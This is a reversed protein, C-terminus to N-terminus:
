VKKGFLTIEKLPQENNYYYVFLDLIKMDFIKQFWPEKILADLNKKNTDENYQKYKKSIKVEELLDKISSNKIKNMQEKSVKLKEARDLKLFTYKRNKYLALVCDNLFSIMFNLFYTQVKVIINDINSSTHVAKKSEKNRKKGRKQKLMETKFYPRDKNIGTSKIFLLSDDNERKDTNSSNPEFEFIKDMSLYSSIYESNNETLTFDFSYDM